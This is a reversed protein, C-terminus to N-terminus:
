CGSLNKSQDDIDCRGYQQNLRMYHDSSHEACLARLLWLRTYRAWWPGPIQRLHLSNAIIQHLTSVLFYVALAIGTTACINERCWQGAALVSTLSQMTSLTM